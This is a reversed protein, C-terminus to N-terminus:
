HETGSQRGVIIEMLSQRGKWEPPVSPTTTNKLSGRVVASLLRVVKNIPVLPIRSTKRYSPSMVPGGSWRPDGSKWWLVRGLRSSNETTKTTPHHFSYLRHLQLALPDARQSSPNFKSAGGRIYIGGFAVLVTEGPRKVILSASMRLRFHIEVGVCRKLM